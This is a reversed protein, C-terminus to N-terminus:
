LSWCLDLKRYCQSFGFDNKFTAGQVSHYTSTNMRLGYQLVNGGIKALIEFKEQPMSRATVNEQVIKFLAGEADRLSLYTEYIGELKM